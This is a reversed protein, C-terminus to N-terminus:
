MVHVILGEPFREIRVAANYVDRLREEQLIEDRTGIEVGHNILILAEAAGAVLNILHTIMVIAIGRRHFGDLIDMIAKEAKLDMGNTPEDLVLVEPECALARAILARQKQGGSLSRFPKRALNLIQLDQLAAEVAKGGDKGPSRLPGALSYRSMMVFDRLSLPYLEDVTERQPVYGFRLGEKKEVRGSLPKLIGLLTKIFTTKGAGNPGVLGYYKGSELSFDIGEIVTKGPYGISVSRFGALEGSKM